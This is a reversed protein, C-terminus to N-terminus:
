WLWTPQSHQLGFDPAIVKRDMESAFWMLACAIAGDGHRQEGDTGKKRKGEPVKPTGKELVVQRHDSLLDASAPLEVKKDELGAKYKSMNEQYWKPVLMVQAIRASGYRQMAVEALYQGNGRADMGGARFRPLRDTIYFLIQEQQRFPVNRLELAFLVRRVLNPQEQAPILVSLDGIRAFDMGYFSALNPNVKELLPAIASELWDLIQRERDKEPLVAFDDKLQLKVVLIDSKMCGEVVVRPFYSGSLNRPICLLEEDADDGFEAFTSSRFEAEAERSWKTGRVLCIRQYLGEKLADDFTTFHRSYPFKGSLVDKELEYYPEEISNYTTIIHISSGWIRLAKAAKFLTTFDDHFAAEDIVVRGQRSRLSRPSSSLAEVRYGSNFYIRYILIAKHEDGDRFVEEDEEVQSATLNYAKAWDAVDKIFTQTMVKEYGIYFCNEGRVQAAVLACDSAEAWSIGIRRSKTYMKIGSADRQWRQQYPLLLKPVDQPPIDAAKVFKSFDGM